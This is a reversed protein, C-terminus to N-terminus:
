GYAKLKREYDADSEPPVTLEEGAMIDVAALLMHEGDQIGGLRLNAQQDAPPFNIFQAEDICLVIQQPSELNIYGRQWIYDRVKREAFKVAFLTIRLDLGPQFMWVVKDQRIPELAFVGYGHIPSKKIEVPVTLM